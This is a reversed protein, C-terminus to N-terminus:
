KSVRKLESIKQELTNHHMNRSSLKEEVPIIGLRSVEIDDGLHKNAKAEDYITPKEYTVRAIKQITDKKVILSPKPPKRPLLEQNTVTIAVHMNKM